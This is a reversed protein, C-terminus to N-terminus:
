SMGSEIRSGNVHVAHVVAIGALMEVRGAGDLAVAEDIGSPAVLAYAPSRGLRRGSRDIAQVRASVMVVSGTGVLAIAEDARAPTILADPPVGLIDALVLRQISLEIRIDVDLGDM